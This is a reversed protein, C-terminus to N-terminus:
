QKRKQWQRRRDSDALMKLKTKLESKLREEIAVLLLKDANEPTTLFIEDNEALGHEVIVENDNSESTLVEQKVIGQESKKYVYTLSDSHLAELPVYLVDQFTYTLIENSTTMAPRLISDSKIMQIVIEFVKADYGRLEEGVNAVQIVEGEYLKDPFADIKIKVNQGKQVKSIDVENVYTKSIMDSLDPLEAVVPDWSSIQSGPVKKAGDWNRAYIVMGDEPAMITFQGSIDQIQQLRIEFRKLNTLIESIQANSKTQTLEYKQELQVYDRQARELDIEAQRIVMKPEFQSQQVQLRKEEMSFKLNILQDRISRLEIATDIKTQELQTYIQDIENQAEKMKTALETQDLGAVYDGKKVVTGEPILDSISTQYVEITRMGQPGRIKVSRKAQLEGTANVYIKFEGKKVTTTLEKVQEKESSGTFYYIGSGVLVVLLLPVFVRLIKQVSM